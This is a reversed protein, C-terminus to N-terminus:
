ASSTACNVRYSSSGTSSWRKRTVPLPPPTALCQRSVSSSVASWTLTASLSSSSSVPRNDASSRCRYRMRLHAVCTLHTHRSCQGLNSHSYTTGQQTVCLCLCSVSRVATFYSQIYVSIIPESWGPHAQFPSVSANCLLQTCIIHRNSSYM